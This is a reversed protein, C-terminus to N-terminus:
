EATKTLTLEVSQTSYVEVGIPKGFAAYRRLFDANYYIDEDNRDFAFIDYVGPAINGIQFTGDSMTFATRFWFEIRRDRPALVVFARWPTNSGYTVKGVVRGGDHKLLVHVPDGGAVVPLAGAVLDASGQRYSAVYAGDWNSLPGPIYAQGRVAGPVRFEGNDDVGNSLIGYQSEMKPLWEFFLEINTAPFIKSPEGQGAEDVEVKGEIVTAAPLNVELGRIPTERNVTVPMATVCNETQSSDPGPTVGAPPLAAPAGRAFLLYSGPPVPYLRFPDGVRTQTAVMAPTPIGPIILGLQVPAGPMLTEATVTGEISVGREEKMIMSVGSVDRMMRMDLLQANEPREAGPYFVPLAVRIAQGPAVIQPRQYTFVMYRRARLGEIRFEGRQNTNVTAIFASRSYAGGRFTMVHVIANTVPEGDDWQVQGSISRQATINLDGVMLDANGASAGDVIIDPFSQPFYGAKDIALNYRGSVLGTFRLNGQGDSIAVIPERIETGTLTVRVTSVGQHSFDDVVRARISSTFQAQAASIRQGVPNALCVLILALVSRVRM